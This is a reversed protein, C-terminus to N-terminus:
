RGSVGLGFGSRNSMQQLANQRPASVIAEDGEQLGDMIETVSENSLGPTVVRQESKGDVLVDVYYKGNSDRRLARNPVTLIDEKREVVIDAIATMGTRVSVDSSIIQIEVDYSVVGQVATGLPSVRTVSGRLTTNPFADLTITADQGVQVRGVDTEDISTDVHYSDLTGVIVVSGGMGIMEGVHASCSLVTGTIPSILVADNLHLKAQDLAAKAQTVQAESIALEESSPSRRLKDLQAKAQALQSAATKFATDDVASVQLKYNSLARQYDVTARQLNGSQPLLGIEPRSAVRDYAGQADSLALEAKKLDAEAITLQDGRLSLKTKASEYAAQASAVAAEAAAIDAADAGAKTQKLRAVNLDYSAEAQTVALELQRTDLRILPDGPKVLQDPQVNVETVVGAAQFSLSVQEKPMVNGSANVTALITDKRVPVTEYASSSVTRRGRLFWVAGLAFMIVLVVAAAIRRKKM